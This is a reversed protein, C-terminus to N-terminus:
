RFLQEFLQLRRRLSSPYVEHACRQFSDEARLNDSLIPSEGSSKTFGTLFSLVKGWGKRHRFSDSPSLVSAGIRGWGCEVLFRFFILKQGFNDM